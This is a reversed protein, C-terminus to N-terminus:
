RFRCFQASHCAPRTGYGKPVFRCRLLDEPSQVPVERVEIKTWGAFLNIQVVSGLNPAHRVKGVISPARYAGFIVALVALTLPIAGKSMISLVILLVAGLAALAACAPHRRFSNRDWGPLNSNHDM